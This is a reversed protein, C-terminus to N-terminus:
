PCPITALHAPTRSTVDGLRSPWERPVGPRVPPSIAGGTSCIDQANSEMFVERARFIRNPNTAHVSIMIQSGSKIRREYHAAEASPMGLHILGRAIAVGPTGNRAQHLAAIIPGAAIYSGVGPVVLRGIGAVWALGGRIPGGSQAAVGNLARPDLERARDNEPNRDFFLAGIETSFFDAEKLGHIIRDVSGRSTALCFISLPPMFRPLNAILTSAPSFTAPSHQRSEADKKWVIV